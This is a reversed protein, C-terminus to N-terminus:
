VMVKAIVALTKDRGERAVEELNRQWYAPNYLELSVCGRYDITKLDRLIDVLPLIDDGPFVRREDKLKELPPEAPADNVQCNGSFICLFLRTGAFGSHVFPM